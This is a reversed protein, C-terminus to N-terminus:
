SKDGVLIVPAGGSSIRNADAAVEQMGPSSMAENLAAPSEFPMMFMKYYPPNGGPGPLFSTISYPREDKPIGTKEHLLAVHRSYDAEFKKEDTPQPYLVILNTM